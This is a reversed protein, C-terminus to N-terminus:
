PWAILNSLNQGPVLRCMDNSDNKPNMQLNRSPFVIAMPSRDYRGM